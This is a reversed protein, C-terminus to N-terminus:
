ASAKERACEAPDDGHLGRLIVTYSARHPKVQYQPLTTPGCSAGGLGAQVYDLTLFTENSRTVENIHTAQELDGISYHLASFNLFPSEDGPDGIVLLGRGEDNTIAVWRTDIRNGNEQPYVYPYYQEDVGSEFRGIRVGSKRDSYAEHPGRGYWRINEFGAPVTMKAGMRALPPLTPDPSMDQTIRIEGNGAITYTTVWGFRPVFGIGNEEMGLVMDVIIQVLDGVREVAFSRVDREMRDLGMKRWVVEMKEDSYHVIVRDNDTPARWLNPTLGEQVLEMGGSVFSTMVGSERSIVVSFDDGAVTVSEDTDELTIAPVPSIVAKPETHVVFQEWAVEHGKSGWSTDEPLAFNINLIYEAGPKPTPMTFPVTIEASQGPLLDLRDLEGSQIATGDETLTWSVALDKTSIFLYDGTVRLRGAKADIDEVIVPQILKKYEWLAPHPDRDPSILGNCCFNLDNVEDGYDGGYAWFEVGNEDTKRLGQDVWDWIFGGQLRKHARIAEWYEKLNGCSNGMAHAYECMILPRGVDYMSARHRIRDVTPYMPAVIDTCEHAENEGAPEYHIIRTPDKERIWGTLAVHNPGFGSENGLSWGFISPHNKDREVMRKGRQMFAELWDPNNAPGDPQDCVAHSEINAEDLVFIGYQDCLDYWKADNPYHSTRVANMNFQKMIEIDRIMTEVSVTKGKDPDHDHRDAGKILIPVGNVMLQEDKIEVTRFGIRSSLIQTVEDGDSLTLILTYLNPTEDTWKLPNTVPVRLEHEYRQGGDLTGTEPTKTEVVLSGSPDYLAMSVGPKADTDSMNRIVNTVSLVANTYTTDLETLVTYDRIHAKPLSYLTVDRHIGSLWWMDQDEVWSGDSWRYVRIAVTNTGVRAYKTIDFEAPLRSGQSYGVMEGNIWLYFASDVGAFELFYERGNWNAPIDFTTRYCGTPNDDKPFLPFYDNSFPMKVNTYIPKDYGACQWNCPVEIDDWGSVDYDEAEFGEPSEEPVPAINFKWMGNLSMRFPTRENLAKASAADAYPVLPVHGPEKNREVVLPNEWDRMNM